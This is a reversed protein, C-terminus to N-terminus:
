RQPAYHMMSATLLHLVPLCHDRKRVQPQAAPDYSAAALPQPSYPSSSQDNFSGYDRKKGFPNKSYQIRIGGRDSSQLVAGQFAVHITVSGHAICLTCEQGTLRSDLLNM